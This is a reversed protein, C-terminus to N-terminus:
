QYDQALRKLVLLLSSWASTFKSTNPNLTCFSWESLRPLEKVAQNGCKEM